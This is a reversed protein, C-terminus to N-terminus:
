SHALRPIDRTLLTQDRYCSLAFPTANVWLWSWVWIPAPESSFQYDKEPNKRKPPHFREQIIEWPRSAAPVYFLFNHQCLITFLWKDLTASGSGSGTLVTHLQFCRFWFRIRFVTGTGIFNGYWTCPFLAFLEFCKVLLKINEKEHLYLYIYLIPIPICYTFTCTCTYTYTYIRTHTYTRTYTYLSIHIHIYVTSTYTLM